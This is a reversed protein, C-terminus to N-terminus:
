VESGPPRGMRINMQSLWGLEDVMEKPPFVQVKNDGLEIPFHLWKRGHVWFVEESIPYPVTAYKKDALVKLLHVHHVRGLGTPLCFLRDRGLPLVWNGERATEPLLEELILARAADYSDGVSAVKLGSDQDLVDFWDAPTQERLHRLGLKIWEEASKGSALVMQNPVFIMREPYDIVLQIELGTEGLPEAWPRQIEPADTFRAGLRVMLQDAVEALSNPLDNKAVIQSLFPDIVDPWDDPPLEKCRRYVNTFFLTAEKGDATELTAGNEHWGVITLGQAAARDDLVQLFLPSLRERPDSDSMIINREWPTRAM